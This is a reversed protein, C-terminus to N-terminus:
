PLFAIRVKARITRLTRSTQKGTQQVQTTCSPEPKQEACVILYFLDAEGKLCLVSLLTRLSHVSSTMSCSLHSTTTDFKYKNIYLFFFVYMNDAGVAPAPCSVDTVIIRNTRQMALSAHSLTPSGDISFDTTSFTFRTDGERSSSYLSNPVSVRGASLKWEQASATTNGSFSWGNGGCKVETFSSLVCSGVDRICGKSLWVNNNDAELCPTAFPRFVISASSGIDDAHSVVVGTADLAEIVFDIPLGMVWPKNEAVTLTEMGSSFSGKVSITTARRVFRLPELDVSGITNETGNEFLYSATLVFSWPQHVCGRQCGAIRSPSEADVQFSAIGSSSTFTTENWTDGSESQTGTLTILTTYDGVAIQNDSNLIRISLMAGDGIVSAYEGDSTRGLLNTFAAGNTKVVEISAAQGLTVELAASPSVTETGSTPLGGFANANIGCSTGVIFHGEIEINNSDMVTVQCSKAINNYGRCIFCSEPSMLQTDVSITTGSWIIGSLGTVDGTADYARLGLSITRETVSDASSTGSGTSTIVSTSSQWKWTAAAVAPKFTVDFSQVLTSNQFSSPPTVVVTCSCEDVGATNFAVNVAAVGEVLKSTTDVTISCSDICTHSTTVPEIVPLTSLIFKKGSESPDQGVSYVSFACGSGVRNSTGSCQKGVAVATGVVSLDITPSLRSGYSYTPLGGINFNIPVRVGANGSLKVMVIGPPTNESFLKAQPIGDVVKSGSTVAVTPVGTLVSQINDDTFVDISASSPAEVSVEIPTVISNQYRAQFNVASPGAVTYSRDGLDDAAYVTFSWLGSSDAASFTQIKPSNPVVVIRTADTLVTLYHSRESFFLRCAFCARNIQLRATATGDANVVGVTSRPSSITLTGGGGNGNSDSNSMEIPVVAGAEWSPINNSDVRVISVSFPQRRKVSTPPIGAYIWKASCTVVNFTLLNSPKPVAAQHDYGALLFTQVPMGVKMSYHITVSCTKCPRTFYFNFVPWTGAIPAFESQEQLAVDTVACTTSEGSKMFGGNGYKLNTETGQLYNSSVSLMNPAASPSAMSWRNGFLNVNRFELSIVQGVTLKNTNESFPITQKVVQLSPLGEVTTFKQSVKTREAFVPTTDFITPAAPITLCNDITTAGSYCLDLQITCDECKETFMPWVIGLGANSPALTTVVDFSDLTGDRLKSGEATTPKLTRVSFEGGNNCGLSNRKLVRIPNANYTMSRFGERNQVRTQVPFPVGTVVQTYSWDEGPTNEYTLYGNSTSALQRQKPCEDDFSVSSDIKWSVYEETPIRWTYRSASQGNIQITELNNVASVIVSQPTSTASLGFFSFTVGGTGTFTISSSGIGNETSIQLGQVSVTFKYDEDYVYFKKTIDFTDLSYVPVVTFTIDDPSYSAGCQIPNGAKKEAVADESIFDLTPTIVNDPKIDITIESCLKSGTSTEEIYSQQTNLDIASACISFKASRVPSQGSAATESYRMSISGRGNNNITFDGVTREFLVNVSGWTYPSALPTLSSPIEISDSIGTEANFTLGTGIETLSVTLQRTTTDPQNTITNMVLVNFSIGSAVSSIRSTFSTCGDVNSCGFEVGSAPSVSMVANPKQVGREVNVSASCQYTRSGSVVSGTATNSYTPAITTFSLSKSSSSGVAPVASSDVAEFQLNFKVSGSSMRQSVITSSEGVVRLLLSETSVTTTDLFVRWKPYVMSEGPAASSEATVDVSFETSLLSGSGFVASVTSGCVLNAVEDEFTLTVVGTTSSGYSSPGAGMDSHMTFVCNYCPKSTRMDWKVGYAQGGNISSIVSPQYKYTSCLSSDTPNPFACVSSDSAMIFLDSTSIPTLLLSMISGTHFEDTMFCNSGCPTGPVAEVTIGSRVTGTGSSTTIRITSAVVRVATTIEMSVSNVDNSVEFTITCGVSSFRSCGNNNKIRFDIYYSSTGVPTSVGLVALYTAATQLNSSSESHVALVANSADNVSPTIKYGSLGMSPPIPITASSASYHLRYPMLSELYSGSTVSLVKTESNLSSVVTPSPSRGESTTLGNVIDLNTIRLPTVSVPQPRVIRLGFRTKLSVGYQVEMWVLVSNTGGELLPTISYEFSGDVWAREQNSTIKFHSSKVGTPFDSPAITNDFDTSSFVVSLVGLPSYEKPGNYRAEILVSCDLSHHCEVTMDAVPPENNIFLSDPNNKRVNIWQPKSSITDDSKKFIAGCGYENDSCASTYTIPFVLEGGTMYQRLGNTSWESRSCGSGSGTARFSHTGGIQTASTTAACPLSAGTCRLFDVAFSSGSGFTVANGQSDAAIVTYTITTGSRIIPTRSFFGDTTVLEQDINNFYEATDVDYEIFRLTNNYEVDSQVLLQTVSAIQTTDIWYGTSGGTSESGRNLLQYVLGRRSSSSGVSSSGDGAKYACIKYSGRQSPITPPLRFADAVRGAPTWTDKVTTTVTSSRELQYWNPLTPNSPPPCIQDDRVLTIQDFSSGCDIGSSEPSSRCWSGLETATGSTIEVGIDFVTASTGATNVEVELFSPHSHLGYDGLTSPLLLWPNVDTISSHEVKYCVHYRGTNLPIHFEANTNTGLQVLTPCSGHTGETTVCNNVNSAADVAPGDCPSTTKEWQSVDGWEVNGNPLRSQPESAKVLKFKNSSSVVPNATFSKFVFGNNGSVGGTTLYRTSAGALAISDEEVNAFLNNLPSLSPNLSWSVMHGAVTTFEKEILLQDNIGSAQAVEVWIDTIFICVKYKKSVDSSVIPLVTKYIAVDSHGDSPGLDNSTKESEVAVNLSRGWPSPLMGESVNESCPESSKVIKAKDAGEDTNFVDNSKSFSCGSETSLCKLFNIEIVGGNTPKNEKTVFWRVQNDIVNYNTGRIWSMTSNSDVPSHVCLSYSGAKHPAILYFSLVKTESNYKFFNTSSALDDSATGVPPAVCDYKSPVFKAYFSDTPQPMQTATFDVLSGGLLNGESPTIVIVPSPNVEFSSDLVMYNDRDGERYCVQYTGTSPLTVVAALSSVDAVDNELFPLTLSYIAPSKAVARNVYDAGRKVIWPQSACPESLLGNVCFLTLDYDFVTSIEDCNQDPRLIKFAGTNNNWATLSSSSDSVVFLAETREQGEASHSVSLTHRASATLTNPLKVWNNGKLKLCLSYTNSELTVYFAATSVSSDNVLSGCTTDGSHIQQITCSLGGADTTEITQTTKYYCGATPQVLRMTMGVSASILSSGIQHLNSDLTPEGKTSVTIAGWTGARTDAMNWDYTEGPEPFITDNGRNDLLLPNYYKQGATSSWKLVRWGTNTDCTTTDDNCSRRYCVYYESLENTPFYINSYTTAIKAKDNVPSSLTPDDILNNSALPFQVQNEALNNEVTWCGTPSVATSLENFHESSVVKLQDGGTTAWFNSNSADHPKSDLDGSPDALILTGWSGATLDYTSWTLTEESITFRTAADNSACSGAVTCRSLKRWVPTQESWSNSAVIGMRMKANSYCVEYDGATQPLRVYAIPAGDTTSYTVPSSSSTLLPNVKSTGFVGVSTSGLSFISSPSISKYSVWHGNSSDIFNTGFYTSQAESTCSVGLPVIKLNDSCSQDCGSTAGRLFTLEPDATTLRIMAFQGVTPTFIEYWVKSETPTYSTSGFLQWTKVSAPTWVHTDLLYCIVFVKGFKPATLTVFAKRGAGNVVDSNSSYGYETTRLLYNASAGYAPCNLGTSEVFEYLRVELDNTGGMMFARADTTTIGIRFDQGEQFESPSIDEVFDFDAPSDQGRVSSFLALALAACAQIRM